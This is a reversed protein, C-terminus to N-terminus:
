ALEGSYIPHGDVILGGFGDIDSALGVRAGIQVQRGLTHARRRWRDLDPDSLASDIAALVLARVRERDQPGARRALSTANPLDPPFVTQNVNLGIGVVLWQITEAVSEMEALLGALKRGDDDVVDNPWKVRVDFTEALSAAIVLGLAPAQAPRVTPRLLASLYLNQDPPSHWTRGRTGRGATQTDAVVVTRHRAGARALAKARDQTSDIVTHHEIEWPIDAM